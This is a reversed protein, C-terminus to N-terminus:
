DTRILQYAQEKDIKILLGSSPYCMWFHSSAELKNIMDHRVFENRIIDRTTDLPIIHSGSPCCIWVFNRKPNQELWKKDYLLVDGQSRPWAGHTNLEEVMQRFFMSM